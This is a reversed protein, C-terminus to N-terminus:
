EGPMMFRFNQVVLKVYESLVDFRDIPRRWWVDPVIREYRDPRMLVDVAGAAERRFYKGARRTHYPSTSVIIRKWGKRRALDITFAAEDRTADLQVGSEEISAAPVGMQQLVNKQLDIWVPFEVHLRQMLQGNVEGPSRLLLIRGSWGEKYLTAAELTREMRHSGLVVIADAPALQDSRILARGLFPAALRAALALLVLVVFFTGLRRLWKM